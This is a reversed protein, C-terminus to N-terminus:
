RLQGVHDLDHDIQDTRRTLGKLVADVNKPFFSKTIQAPLIETITLSPLNSPLLQKRQLFQSSEITSCKFFWVCM